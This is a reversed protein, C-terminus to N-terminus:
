RASYAALALEITFIESKKKTKRPITPDSSTLAISPGNTPTNKSSEFYIERFIVELHDITITRIEAEIVRVIETRFNCLLEFDYM